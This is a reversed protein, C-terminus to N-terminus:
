RNGWTRRYDARINDGMGAPPLGLRVQDERTRKDCEAFPMPHGLPQPDEFVKIGM